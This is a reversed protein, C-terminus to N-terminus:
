RLIIFFIYVVFSLCINSLTIYKEGMIYHLYAIFLNIILYIISVINLLQISDSVFLCTMVYLSFLIISQSILTRKPINEFDM